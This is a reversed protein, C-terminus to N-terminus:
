YINLFLAKLPREHPSEYHPATAIVPAPVPAPLRFNLVTRLIRQLDDKLYRVVSSNVSGSAFFTAVVPAVTATPASTAASVLIYRNSSKTPTGGVLEDKGDHANQRPNCCAFSWAMSSAPHFKKFTALNKRRFPSILRNPKSSTSNYVAM